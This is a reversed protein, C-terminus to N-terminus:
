RVATGTRTLRHPSAARAERLRVALWPGFSAPEITMTLPAVAFPLAGAMAELRVADKETTVIAEAQTERATRAIRDLDSADYRHHDRFGLVGGLRWGAATLDDFFRQPRAIGAVALISMDRSPQVTPGESMWRVVGLERQVQFITPVGLAQGLATNREETTESTLIADAARAASLPERLRGAPLVQDSLDASDAMLLDIDRFLAVHQFGDDLLHVTVALREEGFRGSLYRDAGVLVAAGPLLRALMLPEDGAHDLDTLIRDGDSVVTVGSSARRRAYGRSLIAPREGAAILLRALHAVAPTKGSGGVRLNGVSIVPRHLRRCRTANGAYWRRRQGAIAGYISSAASLIVPATRDRDTSWVGSHASSM